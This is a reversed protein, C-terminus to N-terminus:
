HAAHGSPTSAGRWLVGALLGLVLWFVGNAIATAPIFAQELAEPVLSAAVEPQPAGIVYPMVLLVLGLGRWPWGDAFVLLWLGAATAAAASWWWLQRQDLAAAVTGPLEPQLGSLTPAIFFVAFGALGWLLGRLWGGQNHLAILSLVVLAFGIGALVNSLATYLVREIGDGPAWQAAEDAASASVSAAHEYTEAQTILPVVQVTQVMTLVIGALLGAILARWVIAAFM